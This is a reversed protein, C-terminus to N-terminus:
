QSLRCHRFNEDSYIGTRGQHHSAGAQKPRGGQFLESRLRHGQAMYRAVAMRFGAGGVILGEGTKARLVEQRKELVRRAHKHIGAKPKQLEGKPTVSLKPDRLDFGAKAIIAATEWKDGDPSSIIHIRGDAEGKENFIHSFGERFACYYKGKYEILSTFACHTSGDGWIRQLNYCIDQACVASTILAFFASLLLTKTKM